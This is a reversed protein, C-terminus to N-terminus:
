GIYSIAANHAPAKPNAERGLLSLSMALIHGPSPRNFMSFSAKNVIIMQGQSTIHLRKRLVWMGLEGDM